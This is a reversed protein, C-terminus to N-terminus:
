MQVAQAGNGSSGETEVGGAAGKGNHFEPWATFDAAAGNGPAPQATSLDLNVVSTHGALSADPVLGALCMSPVSATPETPLPRGAPPLAPVLHLTFAQLPSSPVRM